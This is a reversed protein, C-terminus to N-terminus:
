VLATVDAAPDLTILHTPSFRGLNGDREIFSVRMVALAVIAEGEIAPAAKEHLESDAV